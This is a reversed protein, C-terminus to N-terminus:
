MVHDIFVDLSLLFRASIRKRVMGDVIDVAQGISTAQFGVNKLNEVLEAVTINRDAFADFDLGRVPVAEAPVPDSPKLVADTVGAPAAENAPSAM